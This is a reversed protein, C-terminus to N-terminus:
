GAAGLSPLPHGYEAEYEARLRVALETYAADIATLRAEQRVAEAWDDAREARHMARKITAQLEDIKWQDEPALNRLATIITEIDM